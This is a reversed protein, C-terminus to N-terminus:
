GSRAALWSREGMRRGLNTWDFRVEGTAGGAYFVSVEEGVEERGRDGKM